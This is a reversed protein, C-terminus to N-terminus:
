LYTRYLQFFNQALKKWHLEECALIFPAQSDSPLDSHSASPNKAPSFEGMNKGFSALDSVECTLGVQYHDIIKKIEGTANSVIPIGVRLYDALRVPFRARDIDSDEMPFLAFDSAQLIKLMEDYPLEGVITIHKEFLQHYSRMVQSLYAGLQSAKHFNGVLLLHLQPNLGLAIEFSALMNEFSKAYNHGISVAYTKQPLLRFHSKLQTSSALSPPPLYDHLGNGIISIKEPPWGYQIAQNKLFESVTTLYRSKIWHPGRKEFFCMLRNVLKPAYRGYGNGWLDDWDHLLPTRRKFLSLACATLINSPHGLAFIHFLDVPTKLAYYLHFPLRFLIDLLHTTPFFRPLFILNIHPNIADTKTSATWKIVPSICPITIHCTSSAIPRAINICRLFTGQNFYFHQQM